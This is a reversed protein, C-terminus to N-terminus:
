RPSYQNKSNILKLQMNHNGSVRRQLWLNSQYHRFKKRQHMPKNYNVAVPNIDRIYGNPETNWLNRAATSFEGRDDVIDWFQNFRYKQEEKSYLIDTSGVNQIPYNIIAPANNKPSLILNLMGSIQETNYVVARDFNFDLVHFKDVGNPEWQYVEMLYELSKLTNVTQGTPSVLEVEFPYNIGYFNCYSDTRNNHKWLATNKVSLFHNKSPLLFNPHWDHFSVWSQTKPDYSITWSANDFYRPDGLKTGPVNNVTFNDENVYQVIGRAAIEPKLKFDRKTFYVIGDSNDYVAQCGVGIVTNDTLEFNPFDETIKYPLFEDFWWKMGQQTIDVLEGTYNFIKGQNQSIWYLGSPTNIVSLRNQCSGYEYSDDANVLNQLAQKFLGGDGITIKTGATTQLTDVGPIMAPAENEFLMMAGNKGIPKITTVRSTFDKYNNVLYALWNDYRLEKNQPLSYIVRNPYYSYCTEATLPDYNRYQM